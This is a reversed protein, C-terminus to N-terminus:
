RMWCRTSRGSSSTTSSRVWPLWIRAAATSPILRLVRRLFIVSRRMSSGFREHAGPAVGIAPEVHQDVVVRAPSAIRDLLRARRTPRAHRHDLQPGFPGPIPLREVPGPRDARQRPRGADAEDHVIAEIEREEGLGIGDMEPLLVERGGRQRGLRARSERDAARRMGGLLEVRGAAFVDVVDGVARDEARLRLIRRERGAAEFCQGVCDAPGGRAGRTAIPPM